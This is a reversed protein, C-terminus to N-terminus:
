RTKKTPTINAAPKTAKSDFESNTHSATPLAGRRTPKVVSVGCNELVTGTAQWLTIIARDLDTRAALERSKADYLKRQQEILDFNSFQGEELRRYAIHVAAENLERTNRATELRQRSLEIRSLATDVDVTLTLESQKIRLLAQQRLGKVADLQARPAVGGIPMSFQVGVTWQPAQGATAKDRADGWSDGIGNYGATAVLDLSPWLQNRAFRLRLNEREAATVAALYDPRKQFATALLHDRSSGPSTLSPIAVPVFVAPAGQSNEKTILRRLALQREMFLNKSLILQEQDLSVQARAQQVDIPSMFGLDLRRQNQQALKNDAAIADEKTRMDEEFFLMDIYTSMVTAISDSLTKEWTFSAVKENIKSTRVDFLNAAPGFDKLLPQRVELGGFAEYFPVITRTDGEFTSRTKSERAVLALQTGLATRVSVSSEYRDTDQNFILVSPTFTPAFLPTVAQGTALQIQQTNQQTALISQQQLQLQAVADASTLDTTVDPRQIAERGLELRLVPDFAGVAVRTRAQEVSVGVKDFQVELNNRLAMEIAEGLTLRQTNTGLNALGASSEEAAAAISFSLFCAAAFRLPRSM